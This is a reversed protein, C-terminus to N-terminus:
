STPVNADYPAQEERVLTSELWTLYANVKKGLTVYEAKVESIQESSGLGLRKAAELQTIVEFLSGRATRIFQAQSGGRGRGWGEAINSPISLAARNLQSCFNYRESQPFGLTLEYVRVLLDMGIRWIDLDEFSEIKATM